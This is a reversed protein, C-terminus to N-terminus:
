NVESESIPAKSAKVERFIKSSFGAWNAHDALEFGDSGRGGSDVATGPAKGTTRKECVLATDLRYGGLPSQAPILRIGMITMIKSM